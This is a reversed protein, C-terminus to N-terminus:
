QEVEKLEIKVLRSLQEKAELTVTARYSSLHESDAIRWVNEIKADSAQDDIYLQKQAYSKADEASLYFTLKTQSIDAVTVLPTGMAVYDGAKVHLKYVYWGPFLIRKEKLRKQTTFLAYKLDDLQMLANQWTQQAAAQAYFASDRNTQSKTKLDKISRYYARRKEYVAKDSKVVDEMLAIKRGLLAANKQDEASDIEIIAAQTAVRGEIREDAKIVRGSVNAKIIHEQYPEAKAYYVDAYSLVSLGAIILLQKVM